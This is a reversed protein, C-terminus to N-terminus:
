ILDNGEDLVAKYKHPIKGAGKFTKRILKESELKGLVVSVRNRPKEGPFQRGLKLLVADVDAVTFEQQGIHKIALIAADKQLLADSNNGKRLEKVNIVSGHHIPDSRVRSSPTANSPQAMMQEVILLAKEQEELHKKSEAIKKRLEAILKEADSM